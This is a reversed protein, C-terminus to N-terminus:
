LSVRRIDGGEDFSLPGLENILSLDERGEAEDFLAQSIHLEGIELTNKVHVLRANEPEVAGVTELAAEVAAKDTALAIPMRGKEPTM